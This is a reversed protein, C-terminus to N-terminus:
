NLQRRKLEAELAYEKWVNDKRSLLWWLAEAKIPGDARGAIELLAQVAPRSGIYALATLAARREREPLAPGLARREFASVSQPPHLRWALGSFRANWQLPESHGLVPLLLDYFEREKGSAGLGLAELYWRDKGDFGKALALLADKSDNWGADRLALAAERRVAPSSDAAFKGALATLSSAAATPAPGAELQRRVARVAVVRIQPDRSKLLRQLQEEAEGGLQGLL